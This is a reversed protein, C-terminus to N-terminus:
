KDSGCTETVFLLIIKFSVKRYTCKLKLFFNKMIKLKNLMSIKNFISQIRWYVRTDKKTYKKLTQVVFICLQVEICVKKEKKEM